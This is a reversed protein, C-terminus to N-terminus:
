PICARASSFVFVVWLVCFVLCWFAGFGDVGSGTLRGVRRIPHAASSGLISGSRSGLILLLAAWYLAVVYCPYLLRSLVVVLPCCLLAEGASLLVAASVCSYGVLSGVRIHSGEDVPFGVRCILVMRVYVGFCAGVWLPSCLVVSPLGLPRGCVSLFSFVWFVSCLLGSSVLLLM